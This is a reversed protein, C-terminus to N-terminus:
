VAFMGNESDFKNNVTKKIPDTNLAIFDGCYDCIIAPTYNGIRYSWTGEFTKEHKCIKRLEELRERSVKITEYLTSCETKIEEGTM